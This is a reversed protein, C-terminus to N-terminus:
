RRPDGLRRWGMCHRAYPTTAEPSQHWPPVLEQPERQVPREEDQHEDGIDEGCGAEFGSGAESGPGSDSGSASSILHPPGVSDVGTRKLVKMRAM